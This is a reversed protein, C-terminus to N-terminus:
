WCDSLERWRDFLSANDAYFNDNRHNKYVKGVSRPTHLKESITHDISTSFFNNECLFFAFILENTKKKKKIAAVLAINLFKLM